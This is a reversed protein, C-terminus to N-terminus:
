SAQNDISELLPDEPNLKRLNEVATQYESSEKDELYMSVLLEHVTVSNPNAEVAKKAVEQAAKKDGQLLKVTALNIYAQIFSANGDIVEQYIKAAKDYQKKQNYINGIINKTEPTANLQNIREYAPLAEDVKGTALKTQAYAQLREGEKPMDKDGIYESAKAYDGKQYAAVAQDWEKDANRRSQLLTFGGILLALVVVVPVAITAVKKYSVKRFNFKNSKQPPTSNDGTSSQSPEPKQEEAGTNGQYVQKFDM